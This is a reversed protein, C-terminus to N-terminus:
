GLKGLVRVPLLTAVAASENVGVWANTALIKSVCRTAHGRRLSSGRTISLMTAYLRYAM